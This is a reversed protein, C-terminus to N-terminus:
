GHRERFALELTPRLCAWLEAIDEACELWVDIEPEDAIRDLLVELRHKGAM